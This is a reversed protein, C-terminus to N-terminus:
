CHRQTTQEMTSFYRRYKTSSASIIKIQFLPQSNDSLGCPNRELNSKDKKVHQDWVTTSYDMTSRVLSHYAIEKSCAPCVKFNKQIFNLTNSAKKSTFECAKVMGPHKKDSYWSTQNGHSNGATSRM